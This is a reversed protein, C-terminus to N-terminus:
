ASPPTPPPTCPPPSPTRSPSVSCPQADDTRWARSRLPRRPRVRVAVLVLAAGYALRETLGIPWGVPGALYAPYAAAAVALWAGRGDLAVLAVLLMAYWPYSVGVLAFTLGVLVVAGRWPRLPDGTRAVGVAVAALVLLGV